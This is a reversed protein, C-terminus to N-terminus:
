GVCPTNGASDQGMLASQALCLQKVCLMERHFLYLEPQLSAAQDYYAGSIAFNCLFFSSSVDALAAQHAGWFPLPHSPLLAHGAPNGM